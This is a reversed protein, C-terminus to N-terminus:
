VLNPMKKNQNRVLFVTGIGHNAPGAEGLLGVYLEVHLQLPAHVPESLRDGDVDLTFDLTPTSVYVLDSIVFACPKGIQDFLIINKGM